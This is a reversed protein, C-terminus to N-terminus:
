KSPPGLIPHWSLSPGPTQPCGCWLISCPLLEPQVNVSLYLRGVSLDVGGEEGDGGLTGYPGVRARALDGMVGVLERAPDDVVSGGLSLFIQLCGTCSCFGGHWLVERGYCGVGVGWGMFGLTWLGEM